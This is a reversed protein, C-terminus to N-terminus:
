PHAQFVYNIGFILLSATILFIPEGNQISVTTFKVRFNHINLSPSKSEYLNM